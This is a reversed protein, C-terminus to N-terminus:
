TKDWDAFPLSATSFDRTSLLRSLDHMCVGHLDNLSANLSANFGANQVLQDSYNAIYYNYFTISLQSVILSDVFVAYVLESPYRTSHESTKM